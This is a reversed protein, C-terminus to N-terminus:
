DSTNVGFNCRGITNPLCIRGLFLISCTICHTLPHLAVRGVSFLLHGSSSFDETSCVGVTISHKVCSLVFRVRLEIVFLRCTFASPIVCPCTLTLSHVIQDILNIRITFSRGLGLDELEISGEKGLPFFQFTSIAKSAFIVLM